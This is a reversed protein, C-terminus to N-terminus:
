SMKKGDDGNISRPPRLVVYAGTAIGTLAAVAWALRRGSMFVEDGATISAILLLAAVGLATGLQAATNLVGSATGQLDFPVKTGLATSAVSSLGIGFGEVGVASPVLWTGLEVAILTASGLAIIGLGIAIVTTPTLRRLAPAAVTAGVVVALSFPMLNLGAAIPDLGRVEQLYLSALIASSTTATNMFAAVAGIRLRRDRRAELPLLPAKARRQAAFFVPLLIVGATLIVAGVARQSPQEIGAAGLVMAMVSGTLLVAGPVDLSEIDEGHTEPVFRRVTMILAVAMPVNALFILRWGVWQTVVGGIIFGSAGAAAGAASWAALARRSATPDSAVTMLSRLASPVSMAAAAGQLCRAVVLAAVLTSSAALLSAVGFLALGWLLVRRHGYRDGLRAGLMLLGGFFMAYGTVVPGASAAPAELDRLMSPLATIVVTVGLVDVFQVLCLV